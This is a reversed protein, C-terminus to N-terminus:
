FEVYQKYMRLFDVNRKPSHHQSFYAQSNKSIKVRLTAQKLLKIIQQAFSKAENALLFDRGAQATMGSMGLTTSVIPIGNQLATLAKIRTGAGSHFPLVFVKAGALFPQLNKQYDHFIIQSNHTLYMIKPNLKGVVHFKVRPLQQWVLPLVEQCFWLLAMENPPWELHGIFLLDCSIQKKSKGVIKKMPYVLPQTVVTKLGPFNKKLYATEEPAISFVVDFRPYNLYEHLLNLNGELFLYLKRILKKTQQFRSKFLLHDINHNELVLKPLIRCHKKLWIKSPLFQASNIHDVHIIAPQWSRIKQKIYAAAAPHHYQYIYHPRLQLYNIFLKWYNEKINELMANSLFLKCHIGLKKMQLLDNKTAQRESVFIAYIDFRRSLTQLTNFTKIKGGGDLPLPFCQSIFLLKHRSM